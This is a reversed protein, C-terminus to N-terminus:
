QVVFEVLASTALNQVKDQAAGGYSIRFTPNAPLLEKTIEGTVTSGIQRWAGSYYSAIANDVPENQANRVRITCLVTSFGVASNTSINQAKDVSVYEHAMRFTYNAPLLEKSVSGGSTMGFSRWAGSYYQVTGGDMLAGQSNRLEVTTNVTSFVVTPNTGINQQKDNSGYAYTMRFSYNAPLLEKSVTGNSTAGFNRWAGAYYQVTGQDIFAGQSNKLHVTANTTSFVVVPNVGIDQQKDNSGYAYTLRFSYNSPLLEKTSVGSSTTGFTRWSGAYYQVTGTDILSGQSNQLKVQTNVTQFVVTDPGVSVSNKQQSGGEYTMRLSLSTLTTNVSFTGDNNNTAAKWTGDYYQLSGTTLRTGTSNILKVTLGPSTAAPLKSVLYETNYRLLAYAESTLTSSSDMDVDHLVQQLTVRASTVNNQALSARATGFFGLYKSATSQDKIWGLTDSQTTYSILTDLIQIPPLTKILYHPAITKIVKSNTVVDQYVKDWDLQSNVFFNDPLNHGRVFSSAIAPLNNDNFSYGRETQGKTLFKNFGSLAIWGFYRGRQGAMIWDTPSAGISLLTDPSELLFEDILQKSSPSNTLSYRYVLTDANELVSCSVKADLNARPYAGSPLPAPAGGWKGYLQGNWSYIVQNEVGHEDEIETVLEYTGDGDVDVFKLFDWPSVIASERMEDDVASVLRLSAGSWSFIWHSEWPPPSVGLTRTVVIEVAGDNNLDAIAKIRGNSSASTEIVTDLLAIIQANRLIGVSQKDAGETNEAPNTRSFTFVFCHTLTGYPNEFGGKDPDLAELVSDVCVIDGASCSDGVASLLLHEILDRHSNSVGSDQAQLGFLPLLLCALQIVRTM